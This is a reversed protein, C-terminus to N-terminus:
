RRLQQNLQPLPFPVAALDACHGDEAAYAKHKFEEVAFCGISSSHSSCKLQLQDQGTGQRLATGPKPALVVSVWGDGNPCSASITSDSEASIDYDALGHAARYVQANYIGNAKATRRASELKEYDIQPRHCGSSVVTLVFCSLYLKLM